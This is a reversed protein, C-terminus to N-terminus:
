SYGLQYRKKVLALYTPQEKLKDRLIKRNALKDAEQKIHAGLNYFYGSKSTIKNLKDADMKIMRNNNYGLLYAQNNEAGIVTMRHLNGDKRKIWIMYIGDQNKKLEKVLDKRLSSSYQSNFTNKNSYCAHPNPIKMLLSLCAQSVYNSKEADLVKLFTAYSMSECSSNPVIQAYKGYKGILKEQEDYFRKKNTKRDELLSINQQFQKLLKVSFEKYDQNNNEKSDSVQTKITDTKVQNKYWFSSDAFAFDEMKLPAKNEEKDQFLSNKAFKEEAFTSGKAIPGVGVSLASLCIAGVYKLQSVVKEKKQLLKAKITSFIGTNEKTVKTSTKEEVVLNQVMEEQHIKESILKAKKYSIILSYPLNKNEKKYRLIFEETFAYFESKIDEALVYKGSAIHNLMNELNKSLVILRKHNPMSKNANKSGYFNKIKKVEEKDIYRCNLM